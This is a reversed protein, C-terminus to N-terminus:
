IVLQKRWERKYENYALRCEECPSEGLKRHRSHGAITGHLPAPKPDRPRRYRSSSRRNYDRVKDPHAARWRPM